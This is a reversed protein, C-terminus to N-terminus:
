PTPISRFLRGPENITVGITLAVVLIQCGEKEIIGEVPGKWCSTGKHQVWQGVRFTEVVSWEKKLDFLEDAPHFVEGEPYSM